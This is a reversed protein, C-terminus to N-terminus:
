GYRRRALTESPTEGFMAAYYQAFRGLHWFGWNMAVDSVTRGAEPCDCLDRRVAELRKLRSWESPSLGTVQRFLVRLRAPEMGIAQAMEGVSLPEGAQSAIFDRLLRYQSAAEPYDPPECSKAHVTLGVLCDHLMGTLVRDYQPGQPARGCRHADFLSLLWDTFGQVQECREVTAPDFFDVNPLHAAFLEAEASVILLDSPASGAIVVEQGGPAIMLSRSALASAEVRWSGDAGLPIAFLLRGCPGATEQLIPVGIRERYVTMGPLALTDISGWYRGSGIQDYHQSWGVLGTEQEFADEYDAHHYALM